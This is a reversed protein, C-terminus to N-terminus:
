INILAKRPHDLKKPLKICSSAALPNYKLISITHDIVLDFILGSGKGFAKQINLIITAYISQFVDDIDSEDTIEKAKSHSYFSHSYKIFIKTKSFCSLETAFFVQFHYTEFLVIKWM